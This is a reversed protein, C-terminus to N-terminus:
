DRLLLRVLYAVEGRKMAQLRRGLLGKERLESRLWRARSGELLAPTASVLRYILSRVRIGPHEVFADAVFRWRADSGDRELVVLVAPTRPSPVFASRGIRAIERVGFRGQVILGLRGFAASAPDASLKQWTSSGIVLCARRVQSRVLRLLVAEM